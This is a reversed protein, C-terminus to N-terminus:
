YEISFLRVNGTHLTMCVMLMRVLRSNSRHIKGRNLHMKRLSSIEVGFIAKALIDGAMFREFPIACTASTMSIGGVGPKVHHMGCLPIDVAVTTMFFTLMVQIIFATCDIDTSYGVIFEGASTGRGTMFM